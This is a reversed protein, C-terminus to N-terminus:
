RVSDAQAHRAARLKCHMIWLGFVKQLQLICYQSGKRTHTFGLEMNKRKKPWGHRAALCPPHPHRRARQLGCYRETCPFCHVTSSQARLVTGQGHAQTPVEALLKRGETSNQVTSYLETGQWAGRNLWGEEKRSDQDPNCSTTSPSRHSCNAARDESRWFFIAVSSSLVGPSTRFFSSSM